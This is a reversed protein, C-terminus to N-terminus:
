GAVSPGLVDWLAVHFWAFLLAATLQQERGREKRCTNIM